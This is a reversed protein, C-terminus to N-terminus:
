FMYFKHNWTEFFFQCCFACLTVRVRTAPTGPSVVKVMRDAMGSGNSRALLKVHERLRETSIVLMSSADDNARVTMGRTASISYLSAEGVCSGATLTATM